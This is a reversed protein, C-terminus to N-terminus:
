VSGARESMVPLNSPQTFGNLPDAPVTPFRGLSSDSETAAPANDRFADWTEEWANQIVGNKDVYFGDKDVYFGDWKEM